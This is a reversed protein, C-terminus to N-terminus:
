DYKGNGLEKSTSARTENLIPVPLNIDLACGSIALSASLHIAAEGM